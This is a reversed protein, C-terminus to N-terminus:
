KSEYFAKMLRIMLLQDKTGAMENISHMALMPNGIDINRIGTNTEIISGITSGGRLDSRNHFIQLKIDNDKAIDLLVAKGFADTAYSKRASDKIVPGENLKPKNTPDAKSIYNPHIAHAQDASIMYSKYIQNIFDQEDNGQSLSIKKLVDKFM